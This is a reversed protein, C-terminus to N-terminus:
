KAPEDVFTKSMIISRLRRTYDRAIRDDKAFCGKLGPKDTCLIKTYLVAIAVLCKGDCAIAYNRSFYSKDEKNFSNRIKATWWGVTGAVGSDLTMYTNDNAFIAVEEDIMGQGKIPLVRFSAVTDAGAYIVAGKTPVVELEDPIEFEFHRGMVDFKARASYSPPPPLEQGEVSGVIM